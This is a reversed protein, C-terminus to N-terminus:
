LMTILMKANYSATHSDHGIFIPVDAVVFLLLQNICVLVATLLVKQATNDKQHSLRYNLGLDNIMASFMIDREQNM